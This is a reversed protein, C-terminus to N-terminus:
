CAPFLSHSFHLVTTKLYIHIHYDNTFGKWFSFVWRGSWVLLGILHHPTSMIIQIESLEKPLGLIIGVMVPLLPKWPPAQHLSKSWAESRRTYTLFETTPGAIMELHSEKLVVSRPSHTSSVARCHKRGQRQRQESKLFMHYMKHLNWQTQSQEGSFFFLLIAIKGILTRALLKSM